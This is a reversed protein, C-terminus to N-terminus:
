LKDRGMLFALIFFTSTPLVNKKKRVKLNM